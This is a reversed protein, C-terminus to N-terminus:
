NYRNFYAMGRLSVQTVLNNRLYQKTLSFQQLSRAALFLNVEETQNPSDGPPPAKQDTPNNVGDIYNYSAQLDEIGEAVVQPANFNVERMLRPDTGTNDLYYTVMLVRTATTPPYNGSGPPVQIQLMTGGPDNRQNLNYPDGADFRLTQGAVATVMVLADGVANSFMILDGTQVVTTGNSLNTCNVDFTVSAGAPDISGTCPLTPPNTAPPNPDNILNQNLPITNDAYMVTVMDSPELVNAGMGAGPPIAPIATYTLPFTYNAGPPGPRNVPINAGNPISIGATPLGEGTLVLDRVIYNMGARLNEQTNSSLTVRESTRQFGSLAALSVMVVIVTVATAILVELFTFGAQHKRRM